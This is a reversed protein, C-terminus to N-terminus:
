SVQEERRKRVPAFFRLEANALRVEDPMVSLQGRLRNFTVGYADGDAVDLLGTLAPEAKTGRGHFEGTVLGKLPHNGAQWNSWGM